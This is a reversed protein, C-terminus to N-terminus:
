SVEKESLFNKVRLQLGKSYTNIESLFRESKLYDIHLGFEAKLTNEWEEDLCSDIIQEFAHLATIMYWHYQEKESETVGEVLGSSFNPNEFALQLYLRYTEYADAKDQVTKSKRYEFLAYGVTLVATFGMIVNALESAESLTIPVSM